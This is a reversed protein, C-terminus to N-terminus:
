VVSKRDEIEDKGYYAMEKSLTVPGFVDFHPNYAGYSQDQFYQRASGNAKISFHYTQEGYPYDFEYSRSFHAGNLMSDLTDKPTTFKVDQFQVLLLLGRPAPNPQDGIWEKQAQIRRANAKRHGSERKQRDVTSLPQLTQHDLWQGEADTIYHSYEDGHMYVIKQTGDELTRVIPGRYAPVAQAMMACVVLLFVISSRRKMSDRSGYCTVRVGEESGKEGVVTERM